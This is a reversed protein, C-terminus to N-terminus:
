NVGGLYIVQGTIIDSNEDILFDCLHSVDRMEGLRNIAQRQLLADVKDKPVYKIM